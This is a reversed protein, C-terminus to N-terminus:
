CARRATTAPLPSVVVHLGVGWAEHEGQGHNVHDLDLFAWEPGTREIFVDLGIFRGLLRAFAEASSFLRHLM